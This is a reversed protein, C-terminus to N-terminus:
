PYRSLLEVVAQSDIGLRAEEAVPHGTVRFGFQEVELALWSPAQVNQMRKAFNTFYSKERKNAKVCVVDGIKLLRSPITVSRGNVALLGHAVIQRAQPRTHALGARFVANDLRREILELLYHGTEKRRASRAARFYRRLQTESLGFIQKLNRKEGSQEGFRTQGGRSGFASM